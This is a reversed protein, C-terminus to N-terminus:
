LVQQHSETNNIITDGVVLLGGRGLGLNTDEIHSFKPGDVSSPTGGLPDYGEEEAECGEVKLGETERIASSSEACSHSHELLDMFTEDRLKEPDVVRTDLSYIQERLVVTEM